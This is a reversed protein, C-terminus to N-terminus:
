SCKWLAFRPLFRFFLLQTGLAIRLVSHGICAHFTIANRSLFAASGRRRALLPLTSPQVDSQRRRPSDLRGRSGTSVSHQRSFSHNRKVSRKKNNRQVPGISANRPERKQERASRRSDIDRGIAHRIVLVSVSSAYSSRRAGHTDPLLYLPTSRRWGSTARPSSLAPGDNGLARTKEERYTAGLMTSFTVRIKRSRIAGTSTGSLTMVVDDTSSTSSRMLFSRTRTAQRSVLYSSRTSFSFRSSSLFFSLSFSLFSLFSLHRKDLLPVKQQYFCLFNLILLFSFSFPSLPVGGSLLPSGSPPGGAPRHM